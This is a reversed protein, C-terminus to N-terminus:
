KSEFSLLKFTHSDVVEIIFNSGSDGEIKIKNLNFGPGANYVRDVPEWQDRTDSVSIKNSGFYSKDNIILDPKEILISGERDYSIKVGYGSINADNESGSIKYVTHGDIPFEGRGILIKEGKALNFKGDVKLQKPLNIPEKEFYNKIKTIIDTM